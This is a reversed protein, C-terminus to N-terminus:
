APVRGALRAMAAPLESLDAIVADAGLEAAIDASYGFAAAVVAMGAARGAAVDVPHDGVYVVEEPKVGLRAACALLPGAEPKQGFGSDGAVLAGVHAFFGLRELILQAPRESKNTCVGVRLGQRRLDALVEFAHPYVKTREVPQECYLDLFRDRLGDLAADAVRAQRAAFAKAILARVGDGMFGEVEGLAFGAIGAEALLRNLISAVDAASDILTGDLDFIVAGFGAGADPPLAV